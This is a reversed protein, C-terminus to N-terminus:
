SRTNQYIGLIQHEQTHHSLWKNLEDFSTDHPFGIDVYFAYVWPTGPIVMSELKSLNGEIKEAEVLFRALSGSQHNLVIRISAKNGKAKSQSEGPEIIFFRTYNQKDSEIAEAIIELGYMDMAVKSGIAGTTEKHDSAVNKVSLATDISEVKKVQPLGNLFDRCQELAMYHSHIEKLQALATGPIAGLHQSIRLVQEGVIQVKAKFLLDYNRHISGAITNEIAIIGLPTSGSAVADVLGGFTDHGDVDMSEKFYAHAAEQHFAGAIGQIAIKKMSYFFGIM